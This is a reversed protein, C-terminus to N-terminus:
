NNSSQSPTFFKQSDDLNQVWIINLTKSVNRVRKSLRNSTGTEGLLKRLGTSGVIYVSMGVGVVKKLFINKRQM